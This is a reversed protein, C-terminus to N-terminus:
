MGNNVWILGHKPSMERILFTNNNRKFLLYLYMCVYMSQVQHMHTLDITAEGGSNM